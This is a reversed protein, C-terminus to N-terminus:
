IILESASTKREDINRGLSVTFKSGIETKEFNYLAGIQSSLGAILKLGLSNSNSVTIGDPFGIGNDCITIKYIDKNNVGTISISGSRGDPFAHQFANTITENIILALPVLQDSSLMLPEFNTSMTITNDSPAYMLSLQQLLEGIYSGIDAHALDSTRYMLEHVLSISQIRSWSDRIAEVAGKGDKISGMQLSLLSSIIQLNNKVRHHVEKILTEKENLSAELKKEISKRAHIIRNVSDAITRMEMYDEDDLIIPMLEVASREFRSLSKGLKKMSKRSTIIAMLLCIIMAAIYAGIVFFSGSFVEKELENKRLTVFENVENFDFHSGIIWNWEPVSSVFVMVRTSSGNNEGPWVNEYFGEGSESKIIQILESFIPDGDVSKFEFLNIKETGTNKWGPRFLPDGNMQACYLNNDGLLYLSSLCDIMEQQDFRIFDLSNQEAGFYLGLQRFSKIYTEKKFILEEKDSNKWSTTTFGEESNQFVKLEQDSVSNGKYDRFGLICQREINNGKSAILDYGDETTIFFSDEQKLHGTPRLERIIGSVISNKSWGDATGQDFIQKARDYANEVRNKIVAKIRLDSNNIHQNILNIAFRVESKIRIKSQDIFNQRITEIERTTKLVITTNWIASVIIASVLGILCLSAFVPFLVTKPRNKFM